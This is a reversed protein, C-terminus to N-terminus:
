LLVEVGFDVDQFAKMMWMYDGEDVAFLIFGMDVKDHFEALEAVQGVEDLFAVSKCLMAGCRIHYPFVWVGSNPTEVLNNNPVEQLLQRASQLEKSGLIEDM